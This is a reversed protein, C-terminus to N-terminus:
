FTIKFGASVVSSEVYREWGLDFEFDENLKITTGGGIGTDTKTGTVYGDVVTKVYNFTPRVYFGLMDDVNVTMRMGFQVFGLRTTIDDTTKRGSGLVIEPGFSLSGDSNTMKLMYGGSFLPLDIKAKDQSMYHINTSIQHEATFSGGDGSAGFLVTMLSVFPLSM